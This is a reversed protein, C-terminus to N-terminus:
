GITWVARRPADSLIIVTWGLPHLTRGGGPRYSVVFHNAHDRAARFIDFEIMFIECRTSRAGRETRWATHDLGPATDNYPADSGPMKLYCGSSM